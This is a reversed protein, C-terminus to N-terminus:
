ENYMVTLIRGDKKDVTITASDGSLIPQDYRLIIYATDTERISIATDDFREKFYEMFLVDAIKLATKESINLNINSVGYKSTIHVSKDSDNWDIKSGMLQFINRIPVYIKDDISVRPLTYKDIHYEGLIINHNVKIAEVYETYNSHVIVTINIICLVIMLLNKRM